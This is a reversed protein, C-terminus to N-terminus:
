NSRWVFRYDLGLYIDVSRITNRGYPTGFVQLNVGGGQPLSFGIGGGVKAYRQQTPIPNSVSFGETPATISWTLNGIAQIFLAGAVTAGVEATAVFEDGYDPKQDAFCNIDSGVQCATTRSLLYISSRYRYGAGVQLYMPSPWLSRGYTLIAQADIQGAGASPAYNRTYGLPIGLAVNLALADLPGLRMMPRLDFRAGVLATGFGYTRYKFAADRIIIRKYPIAIVMTGHKAVGSELYMYVSRDFFANDDVNDAYQKLRGDFTYQRAATSAGYSLKIYGARRPQVWAGQGRVPVAAFVAALAIILAVTRTQSFPHAVSM